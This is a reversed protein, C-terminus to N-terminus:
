IGYEKVKSVEYRTQEREAYSICADGQERKIASKVEGSRKDSRPGAEERAYM